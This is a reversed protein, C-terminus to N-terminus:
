ISLPSLISFAFIYYLQTYFSVSLMLSSSFLQYATKALLAPSYATYVWNPYPSLSREKKNFSLPLTDPLIRVTGYLVGRIRKTSLIRFRYRGKATIILEHHGDEPYVEVSMKSRSQIEVSTGTMAFRNRQSNLAIAMNVVGLHLVAPNETPGSVVSKSENLLRRVEAIEEPYKLRLPLTEGPFLVVERLPIILIEYDTNPELINRNNIDELNEGLYSHCSPDYSQERLM